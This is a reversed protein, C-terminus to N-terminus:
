FEETEQHILTTLEEPTIVQFLNPWKSFATQIHRTVTLKRAEDPVMWVVLPFVRYQKQELGGQYYQHYRGCKELVTGPSETALDIEFFYRDEYVGTQTVVFLDPKLSVIKGGSNYLRWNDPENQTEILHVKTGTCLETIRIYCEAVALTHALFYTSPEFQKRRPRITNDTLRLLHEGAPELRWILSSSGPRVGGIRRNLNSILNLEKLKKLNRSTARLAATPTTATTFYLRCIQNTYLYRYDRIVRLVDKDRDSLTTNLEDLQSRTIREPM